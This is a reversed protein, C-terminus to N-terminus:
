KDPSCM